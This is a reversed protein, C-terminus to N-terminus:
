RTARVGRTRKVSRCCACRREASPRTPDPSCAADARWRAHCACTDRRDRGVSRQWRSARSQRYLPRRSIVYGPRCRAVRRLHDRGRRQPQIGIARGLGIGSAAKIMMGVM